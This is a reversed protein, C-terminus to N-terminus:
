IITLLRESLFPEKKTVVHKKASFLSSFGFDPKGTEAVVPIRQGV